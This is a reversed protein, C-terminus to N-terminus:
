FLHSTLWYSLVIFSINALARLLWPACSFQIQSYKSVLVLAGMVIFWPTFFFILKLKVLSVALDHLAGSVAFTVVLACWAPMIDNCPKMVFRSLYYSWVPNWYRWFLYFSSAGLSRTLMNRLSDKHGIPVGTCKKVYQTLTIAASM